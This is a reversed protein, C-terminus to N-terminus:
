ASRQLFMADGYSFFRFKKDIAYQYASMVKKYGAFASVMMLLTSKPLHFNTVLGDVIRFKFGPYIFIDTDGNFASIQAASFEQYSDANKTDPQSYAAASELARVVTTGVAIVRNGREKAAKIKRCVEDSIEVCEKHMVHDKINAHRVPQFTGAGVHLTISAWEIGETTLQQILAEDFHLGATPAAVAGPQSSFVTQYRESDLAEAERQIYPPIPMVGYNEFLAVADTKFELQFFQGERGIVNAEHGELLLTQGIKIPKNAGLMVLAIRQDLVRELMVEVKGGTPKRAFLRAPLVRTNNVVLLDGPELLQGLHKFSSEQLSADVPSVALLRSATRNALPHQAILAEPLVYDFQDLDM